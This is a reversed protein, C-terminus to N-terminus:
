FNRIIFGALSGDGFLDELDNSTSFREFALFIFLYLGTLNHSHQQLEKKSNQSLRGVVNMTKCLFM